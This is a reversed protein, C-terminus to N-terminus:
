LDLPIQGEIPGYLLHRLLADFHADRAAGYIEAVVDEDVDEARHWDLGCFRASEFFLDRIAVMEAASDLDFERQAREIAEEVASEYAKWERECYDSEDLISGDCRLYDALEAAKVFAATFKLELREFTSEDISVDREVSPGLRVWPDEGGADHRLDWHDECLAVGHGLDPSFVNVEALDDCFISACPRATEYVQVFIQRLSGCAFHRASSDIVHEDAADGAAGQIEELATLYNSEELLDDGREAWSFTAGHTTFLREDWFAADRPRTLAERAAKELYESDLHTM